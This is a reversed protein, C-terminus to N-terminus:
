YFSGRALADSSTVFPMVLLMRAILLLFSSTVLAVSTTVLAVSTTVLAKSTTVLVSNVLPRKLKGLCRVQTRAGRRICSFVCISVSHTETSPRATDSEARVDIKGGTAIGKAGLLRHM